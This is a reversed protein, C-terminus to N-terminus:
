ISFSAIEFVFCFLFHLTLYVKRLGLKRQLTCQNSRELPLAQLITHVTKEESEGGTFHIDFHGRDSPVESSVRQACLRYLMSFLIDHRDTKCLRSGPLNPTVWLGGVSSLHCASEASQGSM